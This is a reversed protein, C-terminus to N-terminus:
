WGPQVITPAPTKLAGVVARVIADTRGRPTCQILDATAAKSGSRLATIRSPQRTRWTRAVRPAGRASLSSQRADLAQRLGQTAVAHGGVVAVVQRGVGPFEDLLHSAPLRQERLRRHGDLAGARRLLRHVERGVMPAARTDELIDVDLEAVGAGDQEAHRRAVNGRQHLVDLGVPDVQVEALRQDRDVAGAVRGGEGLRAAVARLLRDHPLEVHDMHHRGLLRRIEDAHTRQGIRRPATSM